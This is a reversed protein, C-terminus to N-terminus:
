MGEFVHISLKQMTGACMKANNIAYSVSIIMTCKKNNSKEKFTFIDDSETPSHMIVLDYRLRNAPAKGVCGLAKLRWIYLAM